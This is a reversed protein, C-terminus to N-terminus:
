GRFPVTFLGISPTEAWIPTLWVDAIRDDRARDSVARFPSSFTFQAGLIHEDRGAPKPPFYCVGVAQTQQHPAPTVIPRGLGIWEAKKEDGPLVDLLDAPIKISANVKWRLFRRIGFDLTFAPFRLVILIGAWQGPNDVNLSIVEGKIRKGAIM